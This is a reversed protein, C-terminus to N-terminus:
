GHAGSRAQERASARALISEASSRVAEHRGEPRVGFLPRVDRRPQTQQAELQEARGGNWTHPVQPLERCNRLAMDVNAKFAATWDAYLPTKSQAYAVFGDMLYQHHYPEVIGREVSLWRALDPTLGFGVPLGTKAAARRGAKVGVLQGPVVPLSAGDAPLLALSGQAELSTLQVRMAELATANARQFEDAALAIAEMKLRGDEQLVWGSMLVDWTSIVRDETVGCIKAITETSSALLGGARFAERCLAVHARVLDGDKSEYAPHGELWEGRLPPNALFHMSM